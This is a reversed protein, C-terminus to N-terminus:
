ADWFVHIPHELVFVILITSYCARIKLIEGKTEIDRLPKQKTVGFGQM